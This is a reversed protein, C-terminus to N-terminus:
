FWIWPFFPNYPVPYYAPADDSPITYFGSEISGLLTELLGREDSLGRSTADTRDSMGLTAEDFHTLFERLLATADSQRGDRGAKTAERLVLVTDLLVAARRASEESFFPPDGEPSLGAPLVVDGSMARQEGSALTYSMSLHGVTVDEEFTPPERFTLRVVIVGGERASFFLTPVHVRAGRSGPIYDPVGYVDRIGIGDPVNIQLDLDFAAPTVFFDFEDEFIRAIREADSLFFSNALRVNALDNGLETGFDVGVGMITCGIGLSAQARIMEVFEPSSFPGVTPRADTFLIVRNDHTQSASSAVQEFGVRLAEFLHTNGAAKLRNIRDRIADREAARTPPLDVTVFENFSVLSLRDDDRLRDLLSHLAQQVAELKSRRDTASAAAGMSGSRDVVVSLNLPRRQFEALDVTTGLAVFLDVGAAPENFPQRYAVAFSAYIEPAGEPATLPIDHESLFGEVTIANPDPLAGDRIQSRAEAIDQTGGPTVGAVNADFSAPTGVGCGFHAALLVTGFCATAARTVITRVPQENSKHARASM